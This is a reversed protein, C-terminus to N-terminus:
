SEVSPKILRETHKSIIGYIELQSLYNAVFFM